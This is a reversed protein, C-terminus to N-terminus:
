IKITEFNLKRRVKIMNKIPVPINSKFKKRTGTRKAEHKVNDNSDVRSNFDNKAGLSVEKCTSGELKKQLTDIEAGLKLITSTDFDESNEEAKIMKSIEKMYQSERQRIKNVTDIYKPSTPQDKCPNEKPITPNPAKNTKNSEKRNCKTKVSNSNTKFTSLKSRLLAENGQWIQQSKIEENKRDQKWQNKLSEVKAMDNGYRNEILNDIEIDMQHLKEKYKNKRFELIETKQYLKEKAHQLRLNYEQITENPLHKPVLQKPITICNKNYCESYMEAINKNKLYYYYAMKRKKKMKRLIKSYNFPEHQKSTAKGEEELTLEKLIQAMKLIVEKLINDEPLETDSLLNTAEIIQRIAVLKFSTEGSPLLAEDKQDDMGEDHERNEAM